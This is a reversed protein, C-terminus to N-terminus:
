RNADLSFSLLFAGHHITGQEPSVKKEDTPVIAEAKKVTKQFFSDNKILELLDFAFVCIGALCSM